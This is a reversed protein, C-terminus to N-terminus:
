DSTEITETALGSIDMKEYITNRIPDNIPNETIVAHIIVIASDQSTKPSIRTKGIVKYEIGLSYFCDGEKLDDYLIKM